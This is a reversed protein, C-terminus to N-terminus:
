GAAGRRAERANTARDFRRLAGTDHDIPSLEDRERAVIIEPKRIMRRQDGGRPLRCLTEAHACASRMEDRSMETRMRREFRLDRREHPRADARTRQQKRGTIERIERDQGRKGAAAVRNEGVMQVMGAEVISRQQRAGIQNTICMAVDRRQAGAEYRRVRPSLQNRGIRHEAHVAVERRQGRQEAEGVFEIGPDNDVIRVAETHQAVTAARERFELEHGLADDEHSRQALRGADRAGENLAACM